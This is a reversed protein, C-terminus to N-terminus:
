VKWFWGKRYCGWMALYSLLLFLLAYVFSGLMNGFLPSLLNFSLQTLNVGDFQIMMLLRALLAAFVFFLISNAGFVLFPATWLRQQRIDVLYILGAFSLMALGSSLLVYAPTWLAKNIPQVQDLGLALVFLLLGVKSLLRWVQHQHQQLMQGTWVGSLTTVVAAITSLLGEPDFGYPQLTKKYLHVAGFLQSDIFGVLNNAEQLPDNSDRLPYPWFQLALGYGLLLGASALLWVRRERCLQLLLVTLLFALGIRPLVGFYRLRLLKENIWSFDPNAFNYWFLSLGWGILILKVARVAAAKLEGAPQHQFKQRSYALAIGVIFLFFPFILDTPTWGHWQAHRLPAFVYAWSGPNNVLIMATITLGRFTDLALLRKPDQAALIRQHHQSFMM